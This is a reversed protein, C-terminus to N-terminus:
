RLLGSGEVTLKETTPSWVASAQGIRGNALDVTCAWHAPSPERCSAAVAGRGRYVNRVRIAIETDDPKGHARITPQQLLGTASHSLTAIRVIAGVVVLAVVAAVWPRRRFM